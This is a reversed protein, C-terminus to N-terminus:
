GFQVHQDSPRRYDGSGSCGPAAGFEFFSDNAKLHSVGADLIAYWVIYGNIAVLSDNKSAGVHTTFGSVDSSNADTYVQSM